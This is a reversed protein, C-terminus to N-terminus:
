REASETLLCGQTALITLAKVLDDQGIPLKGMTMIRYQVYRSSEATRPRDRKPLMMIEERTLRLADGIQHRQITGTEEQVWVLGGGDSFEIDNRKGKVPRFRMVPGSHFKLDMGSKSLRGGISVLEKRDVAVQTGRRTVNVRAEGWPTTLSTGNLDMKTCVINGILREDPSLVDFRREEPTAKWPNYLKWPLRSISERRMRRLICVTRLEGPDM